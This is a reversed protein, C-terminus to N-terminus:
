LGTLLSFLALVPPNLLRGLLSTGGIPIILILLIFLSYRQVQDYAPAWAPPMLGWLVKSGDLPVLPILNFVALYLNILVITVLIQAAIPAALGLSDGALRIPIAALAAILVNMLPGAASVLVIGAKVSPAERLNYPVFPVPKAWGFPTVALMLAGVPDLHARPNLTVRGQYYATRDGLRLATWAHAFEHLPMALLLIIAYAILAPVLNGLLPGPQTLALLIM